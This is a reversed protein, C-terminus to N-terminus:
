APRAPTVKATGTGQVGDFDGAFEANGDHQHRTKGADGRTQAADERWHPVIKDLTDALREGVRRGCLDVAAEGILSHRSSPKEVSVSHREGFDHNAMFDIQQEATLAM